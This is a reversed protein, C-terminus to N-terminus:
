VDHQGLFLNNNLRQKKYTTKLRALWNQISQRAPENTPRTILGTAGISIEFKAGHKMPLYTANGYLADLWPIFEQYDVLFNWLSASMGENLSSERLSYVSHKANKEREIDSYRGAVRELRYMPKLGAWTAAGKWKIMRVDLQWQDGYLAMFIPRSDTITLVAQYHQNGLNHFEITAISQERTLRQYTDYDVIFVAFISSLSLLFIALSFNLWGRLLQRKRFKQWSIKILMLGFLICLALIIQETPM